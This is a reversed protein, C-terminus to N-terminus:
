MKTSLKGGFTSKAAPRMLLRSYVVFTNIPRNRVGPKIRIIGSRLSEADLLDMELVELHDEM